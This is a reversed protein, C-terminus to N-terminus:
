TETCIRKRTDTCVRTCDCANVDTRVNSIRYHIDSNPPNHVCVFFWCAAYTPYRSETAAPKGKPFFCSNGMPSIGNTCYKSSM